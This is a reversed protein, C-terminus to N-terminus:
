ARSCRSGAWSKRNGGVRVTSSNRLGAEKAPLTIRGTPLGLRSTSQAEVEMGSSGLTLSHVMQRCTRCEQREASLNSNSSMFIRTMLSGALFKISHLRIEKVSSTPGVSGWLQTRVFGTSTTQRNGQALTPSFRLCKNHRISRCQSRTKSLPRLSQVELLRPHALVSVSFAPRKLPTTSQPLRNRQNRPPPLLTKASPIPSFDPLAENPKWLLLLFRQPYRNPSPPTRFSHVLIPPAQPSPPRQPRLRAVKKAAHPIQTM